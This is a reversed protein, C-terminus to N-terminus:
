NFPFEPSSFARRLASRWSFGQSPLRIGLFAPGAPDILEDVQQRNGFLEHSPSAAVLLDARQERATRRLARFAHPSDEVLVSCEMDGVEMRAMLCSLELMTRERLDDLTAFLSAFSVQIALLAETRAERGLACALRLLQHGATHPGVDVAVRRLRHSVGDPVLWVSCPSETVIRRALLRGDPWRHPHRVLLLDAESQSVLKFLSDVDPEVLVRCSVDAGPCAAFVSRAAPVLSRLVETSPVAAVTIQTGRELAAIGAGYQLLSVDLTASLDAVFIRKFPYV